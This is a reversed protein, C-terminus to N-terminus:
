LSNLVTKFHQTWLPTETGTKGSSEIKKGRYVSLITEMWSFSDTSGLYVPYTGLGERLVPLDSCLVPIGLAAAERPPLGFGEAFSPFLLARAGMLLASVAADELGSVVKIGPVGSDIRSMLRADAWGRNGVIILAPIEGGRSALQGWVDLLLAHNKRPEITGLAVFYPTDPMLGPPLASADPAAPTVDLPAVIGPPVRGLTALQAETQQRTTNALHIVRDAYHSAVALKRAFVESQGPRTFEPHDLPITDHMMITIKLGSVRRLARMM